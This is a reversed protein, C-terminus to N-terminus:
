YTLVLALPSLWPCQVLNCTCVRRIGLGTYNFLIQAHIKGKSNVEQARLEKTYLKPDHPFSSKTVKKGQRSQKALSTPTFSVGEPKERLTLQSLDASRSPDWSNELEVSLSHNTARSTIHSLVSQVNWTCTITLHHSCM